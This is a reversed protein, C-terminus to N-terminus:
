AKEEARQKEACDPCINEEVDNDPYNSLYQGVSIWYGKDDRINKCAACIPILERLDRSEQYIATLKRNAEEFALLRANVLDCIRGITSMSLGFVMVLTIVAVAWTERDVFLGTTDHLATLFGSTYLVAFVFIVAVSALLYATAHKRELFVNCCLLGCMFLPISMSYVSNYLFALIGGVFFVGILLCAKIAYPIHKGALCLIVGFPLMVLILWHLPLLGSASTTLLIVLGGPFLTVGFLFSIKDLSQIKEEPINNNNVLSPDM